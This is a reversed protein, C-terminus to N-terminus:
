KDVKTTKTPNPATMANFVFRHFVLEMSIKMKPAKRSVHTLLHTNPAYDNSIRPMSIGYLVFSFRRRSQDAYCVHTPTVLGINVLYRRIHIFITNNRIIIM